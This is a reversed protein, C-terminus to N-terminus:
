HFHRQFDAVSIYRGAVCFSIIMIMASAIFLITTSKTIKVRSETFFIVIAFILMAVSVLVPALVPSAWVMPILFLVDWDMVSGPWDLLVKLWIYYFIDWLAFISLFYALRQKSSKGLLWTASFILVLTAVERAIETKLMKGMMM